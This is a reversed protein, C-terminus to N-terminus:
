RIGSESGASAAEVSDFLADLVSDASDGLLADDADEPEQQPTLLDSLLGALSAVTPHNWLMTASLDIGVLQKAKKLVTMAMM